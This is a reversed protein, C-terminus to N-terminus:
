FLDSERIYMNKLNSNKDIYIIRGKTGENSTINLPIMLCHSDHIMYKLIFVFQMIKLFYLYDQFFRLFTINYLKGSIM